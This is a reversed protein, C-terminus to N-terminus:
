PRAQVRLKTGLSGPPSPPRDQRAARPGCQARELAAVRRTLRRLKRRMRGAVEDAGADVPEQPEPPALM